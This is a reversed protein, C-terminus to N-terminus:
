LGGPGRGGNDGPPPQMGGRGRMGAGGRLGMNNCMPGPQQPGIGNGRMGMGNGRMGMPPMGAGGGRMGAGARGPAVCAQATGARGGRGMQRQQREFMRGERLLRQQRQALRARAEPPLAKSLQDRQKARLDLLEQRQQDRLKRIAERQQDTLGQQARAPPPPPPPNGRGGQAQAIGTVGACVAGALLWRRGIMNNTRLHTCRAFGPVRNTPRQPTASTLFEAPVCPRRNRLWNRM